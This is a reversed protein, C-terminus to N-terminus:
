RSERLTRELEQTSWTLQLHIVDAAGGAIRVRCDLTEIHSAGDPGAYSIPGAVQLTVGPGSDFASVEMAKRDIRVPVNSKRAIAQHCAQLAADAPSQACAVLLMPALLALRAFHGQGFLVQM